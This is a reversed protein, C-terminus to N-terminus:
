GKEPVKLALFVATGERQVLVPVTKGRPLVKVQEAFQAANKIDTHNIALIVDGPQIGADEAPGEKVEEVLVGREEVGMQQRQERSLDTVGVNLLGGQQKGGKAAAVQEEERLKEVTVQFTKTKGERLVTLNVTKGVPTAGVLLPLRSSEQVPQDDYNLIIDGPKIGVKAAPGNPLVQAVLAGQPRDLGFSQALEQTVGQIAVGLWGRTVHGQTKLQEAVQMAVKIPIAFSLGMFGGSRSYIQSNVGVVEGRLNFLPGGSNGPNVAADTQIFPVYTDSPLSRGLASVIGQTVTYELGFPSGIALVWEGVELKDSDGIKVTPLKDAELKLLAVDSREDLGVVTASKERHDIMRVIIKDAGKVVHANTLIYGDPSIIFGSGLSQIQRESTGPGEEFFHKFFENLPNDEPLNPMGPFRFRQTGAAKQTTSINVVTAGNQKIVQRFDPLEEARLLVGPLLLLLSFVWATVSKMRTM